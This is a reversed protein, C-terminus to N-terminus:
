MYSLVNYPAHWQFLYSIKKFTQYGYKSYTLLLIFSGKSNKRLIVACNIKCKM